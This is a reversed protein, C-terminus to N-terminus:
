KWSKWSPPPRRVTVSASRGTILAYVVGAVILFAVVIGIVWLIGSLVTVVLMVVGAAVVAAILLSLIQRL